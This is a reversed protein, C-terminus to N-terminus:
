IEGSIAEKGLKKVEPPTGYISEFNKTEWMINEDPYVTGDYDKDKGQYWDGDTDGQFKKLMLEQSMWIAGKIYKTGGVNYSDAKDIINDLINIYGYHLIPNRFLLTEDPSMDPTMCVDGEMPIPQGLLFTFRVAGAIALRRWRKAIRDQMRSVVWPHQILAGAKDSSLIVVLPDQFQEDEGSEAGEGDELDEEEGLDGSFDFDLKNRYENGLIQALAKPSDLAERLEWCEALTRPMIDELVAQWSYWEWLMVGGKAIRHEGLAVTGVFVVVTIVTGSEPKKGKFGSLPLLLDYEQAEALTFASDEPDLIKPLGGNVKAVTAKWCYQM